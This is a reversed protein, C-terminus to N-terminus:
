SGDKWEGTLRYTQIKRPGGKKSAIKRKDIWGRDECSDLIMNLRHVNGVFRLTYNTLQKHTIDVGKLNLPNGNRDMKIGLKWDQIAQMVQGAAQDESHRGMARFIHPMSIKEEVNLLSLALELDPQEVEYRLESLALVMALTWLHKHMRKIYGRVNNQRENEWALHNEQYWEEYWEKAPASQTVLRPKEIALPELKTALSEAAIPDLFEAYPYMRNSNDRWCVVLRGFFGGTFMEETVSSLVWDMTSCGIFSIAINRFIEKGRGITSNEWETPCDYLDTLVHILQDSHFVQKGLLTALESVAFLGVADTYVGEKAPAGTAKNAMVPPTVEKSQISMLFTEVNTRDPMLQILQDARFNPQRRLRVNLRRILDKSVGLAASKKMGSPGLLLIYHNPYLRYNGMDLFFNRRCAAGVTAIACWFHWPIPVECGQAYRLYEGIWGKTPYINEEALCVLKDPPPSAQLARVMDEYRLRLLQDVRGLPIKTREAFAEKCADRLRASM